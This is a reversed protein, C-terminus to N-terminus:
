SRRHSGGTSRGRVPHSEKMSEGPRAVLPSSRAAFVPGLELNWAFGLLVAHRVRAGVPTSDMRLRVAARLFQLDGQLRIESGSLKASPSSVKIEAGGGESFGHRLVRKRGRWTRSDDNAFVKLGM